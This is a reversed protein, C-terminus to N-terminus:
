GARWRPASQSEVRGDPPVRVPEVDGPPCWRDGAGSAVAKFALVGDRAVGHGRGKSSIQAPRSLRRPWEVSRQRPVSSAGRLRRGASLYRQSFVTVIVRGRLILCVDPRLPSYGYVVGPHLVVETWVRPRSRWHATAVLHRLRRAALRRSVGEVRERYRLVAHATLVVDDPDVDLDLDAPPLALALVDRDDPRPM